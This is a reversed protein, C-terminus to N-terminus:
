NIDCASDDGGSPIINVYGSSAVAYRKCISESTQLANEPFSAGFDSTKIRVQIRRLVDNAKGTADVIAQAGIVEMANGGGDLATVQVNNSQYISSLKVYSRSANIGTITVTCDGAATCGGSVIAGANALGIGSGYAISGGAGTHPYFFGTFTGNVLFARQLTSSFPIVDVRLIGVRCTTPWDAPFAGQWNATNVGQNCSAPTHPQADGPRWQFRLSSFQAGTRTQVPFVQSVGPTIPKYELDTPSPDVLLCSYSVSPNIQPVLNPTLSAGFATCNDMYDQTQDVQNADFREKTENVASEAAYFAQANLENDLTQEQERRSLRAFGIVILTIIMMIIITVIISVIGSESSRLKPQKSNRM